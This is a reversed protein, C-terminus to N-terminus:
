LDYSMVTKRNNKKAREISKSVIINIEQELAELTDGALRIEQSNYLDKIAKKNIVM